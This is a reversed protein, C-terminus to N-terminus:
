WLVVLVAVALLWLLSLAWTALRYRLAGPRASSSRRDGTFFNRITTDLELDVQPMCLYDKL